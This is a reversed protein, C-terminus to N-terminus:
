ITLLYESFKEIIAEQIDHPLHDFEVERSFNSDSTYRTIRVINYDKLKVEYCQDGYFVNLTKIV